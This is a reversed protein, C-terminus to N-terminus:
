PLGKVNTVSWLSSTVIRPGLVLVLLLGSVFTTGKIKQSDTYLPIEGLWLAYLHQSGTVITVEGRGILHYQM